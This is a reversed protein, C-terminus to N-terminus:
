HIAYLIGDMSGFFLTGNDLAPASLIERGTAFSWQSKGTAANLAFLIGQDSGFFVLGDAVLPTSHIGGPSNFSWM